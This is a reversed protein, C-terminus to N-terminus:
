KNEPLSVGQPTTGGGEVGGRESPKSKRETELNDPKSARARPDTQAKNDNLDDDNHKSKARARARDLVGRVKDAFDLRDLKDTYQPILEDEDSMIEKFDDVELPTVPLVGFNELMSQISQYSNDIEPEKMEKGFDTYKPNTPIYELVYIKM